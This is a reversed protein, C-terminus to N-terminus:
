EEFCNYSTLAHKGIEYILKEVMIKLEVPPHLLRTDKPYQRRQDTPLFVRSSEFTFYGKYGIDLLGNMLSDLNLSGFYPAIHCDDEGGFNDQVHIAYVHNGLKKLEEHQPMDQMNAHGADWCAHFLPHNVYDVMERLDTANDIWYVNEVCMKNFNEVLVNVGWKEAAELLPMYFAKNKEYVQEKTLYYAYGSHVVITKIGLEGCAQICKINDEIFQANDDAIPRGMPAHSQVFQVGLRDATRKLNEIHGKPDSSYIGNRYRYDYGFSYDIYSFGSEKIYEMAKEPSDTYMSFDGTTTALKM